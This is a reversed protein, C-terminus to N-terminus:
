IIFEINRIGKVSQDSPKNIVNEHMFQENFHRYEPPFTKTKPAEAFEEIEPVGYLQTGAADDQEREFKIPL